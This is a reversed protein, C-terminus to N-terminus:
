LSEEGNLSLALIIYLIARYRFINHVSESSVQHILQTPSLFLGILNQNLDPHLHPRETPYLVYVTWDPPPIHEMSHQELKFICAKSTSFSTLLTFSQITQSMFVVKITTQPIEFLTKTSGEIYSRSMISVPSWETRLIAWDTTHYVKFCACQEYVKFCACM